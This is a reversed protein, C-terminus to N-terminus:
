NPHVNTLCIEIINSPIAHGNLGATNPVTVTVKSHENSTTLRSISCDAKSLQFNFLTGNTALYISLLSDIGWRGLRKSPGDWALSELAGTTNCDSVSTITDLQRFSQGNPTIGIERIGYCKTAGGEIFRWFIARSAPTDPTSPIFVTTVDNENAGVIGFGAAQIKKQIVVLSTMLTLNHATANRISDVTRQNNIHLNIGVLASALTLVLSLMLGILTMGQQTHRSSPQTFNKYM